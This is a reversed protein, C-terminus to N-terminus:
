HNVDLFGADLCCIDQIAGVDHGSGRTEVALSVWREALVKPELNM